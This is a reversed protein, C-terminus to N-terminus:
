ITAFKVLYMKKSKSFINLVVKKKLVESSSFIGSVLDDSKYLKISEMERKELKFVSHVSAATQM